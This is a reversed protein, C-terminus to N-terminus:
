LCFFNHGDILGDRERERERERESMHVCASEKEIISSELEESRVHKFYRADASLLSVLLFQFLLKEVRLCARPIM